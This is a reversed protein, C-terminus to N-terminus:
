RGVRFQMIISQCESISKASEIREAEAMHRYALLYPSHVEMVNHITRMVDNRCSNNASQSMRHNIATNAEIIYLQNFVPARDASPHLSGSRHFIQGCIRFCPPGRGPPSALTAGMSAFAFASNYQRINAQFNLAESSKGTLLSKLDAPYKQLLALKVKGNHCCKFSENVFNLAKCYGCIHEMAGIYHIDTSTDTNGKCTSSRLEMQHAIPKYSGSQVNHFDYDNVSRQPANIAPLLSQFHLGSLNGILLPPSSSSYTDNWSSTIINFPSERNCHESTIHIDVGVIVATAKIFLETAFTGVMNQENIFEDWSMRHHEENLTANYMARYQQIYEIHEQHQQIYQCVTGRLESHTIQSIEPTTPQVEPCALQQIVAHYFYNGDGPTPFDCSVFLGIRAANAVITDAMTNAMRACKSVPHCQRVNRTYQRKRTALRPM